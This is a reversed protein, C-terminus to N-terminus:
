KGFSLLVKDLIPKSENRTTDMLKVEFQFRFGKPLESLDLAAATKQVQKAFGPTYDYAEKVVHWDTWQDIQADNNTDVGVRVEVTEVWPGPSTFDSNAQTALYFPGEAFCVDPDPHGKGLHGCWEFPGNISSATFLGVSMSESGSHGAPDFDGFLYYQGGISLVFPAKGPVQFQTRSSIEERVEGIM